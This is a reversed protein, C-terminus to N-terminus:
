AAEDHELTGGFEMDAQFTHGRRVLEIVEAEASVVDEFPSPDDIAPYAARPM